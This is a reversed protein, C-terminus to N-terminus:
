QWLNKVTGPDTLIRKSTTEGNKTRGVRGVESTTTPPWASWKAIDCPCNRRGAPQQMRPVNMEESRRRRTSEDFEKLAEYRQSKQEECGKEKM